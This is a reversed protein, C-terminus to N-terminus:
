SRQSFKLVEERLHLTIISLGRLRFENLGDLTEERLVVAQAEAGGRARFKGDLEERQLCTSSESSILQM